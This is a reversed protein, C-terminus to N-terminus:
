LFLWSTKNQVNLHHIQYGRFLWVLLIHTISTIKKAIAPQTKMYTVTNSDMWGDHFIKSKCKSTRTHGENYGVRRLTTIQKVYYCQWAITYNYLMNELATNNELFYGELLIFSM